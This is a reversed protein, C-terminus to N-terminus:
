GGGVRVVRALALLKSSIKLGAREAAQANIEFRVQGRDMVFNIAGGFSLFDGTEGVTLIHLGAIAHLFEEARRAEQAPLFVIHCNRAALAGSVLTVRVRRNQVTKGAAIADLDEGFPNRGFVCVSLPADPGGFAEPPWDVFKAFNLLFAAKVQYETWPGQALAVGLLAMAIVVVIALRPFPALWRRTRALSVPRAAQPLPQCAFGIGSM